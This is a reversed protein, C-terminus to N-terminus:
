KSIAHTHLSAIGELAVCQPVRLGSILLSYCCNKSDGALRAPIGTEKLDFKM